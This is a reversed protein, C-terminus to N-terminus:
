RLCCSRWLAGDVNNKLSSAKMRAARKPPTALVRHGELVIHVGEGVKIGVGRTAVVVVQHMAGRMIMLTMSIINLVLIGM